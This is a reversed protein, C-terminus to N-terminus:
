APKEAVPLHGQGVHAVLDFPYTQTSAPIDVRRLQAELGPHKWLIKKLYPFGSHFLDQACDISPNGNCGPVGFLGEDTLFAQRMHRTFPAEQHQRVHDRDALSYADSLWYKQVFTNTLAARKLTFFDGQYQDYVNDSYGVGVAGVLGHVSADIRVFMAAHMTADLPGFLNDNTFTLEDADWLQPDQRLQNAHAAFNFGHNGRFLVQDFLATAADIRAQGARILPRATDVNQQAATRLRQAEPMLGQSEARDAQARLSQGVALLRAAVRTTNSTPVEDVAISGYVLRGTASLQEVQYRTTAPINGDADYMAYLVVKKGTPDVQRQGPPRWCPIDNVPRAGVLERKWWINGRQNEDITRALGPDRLLDRDSYVDITPPQGLLDPPGGARGVATGGPRRGSRTLELGILMAIASAGAVRLIRRVRALAQRRGLWTTAPASALGELHRAGSLAGSVPSPPALRLGSLPHQRPTHTLVAPDGADCPAPSEFASPDTSPLSSLPASPIRNLPM